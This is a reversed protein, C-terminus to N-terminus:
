IPTVQLTAGSTRDIAFIRWNEDGGEDNMFLVHRNGRSWDQWAIPRGKLRTLPAAAALDDAPALWVNIVGEVPALWTLWAGDPSIRAQFRSPNGYLSARPILPISRAQM